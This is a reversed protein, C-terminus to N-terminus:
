TFKHYVCEWQFNNFHNIYCAGHMYPMGIYMMLFAPVFPFMLRVWNRSLGINLMGNREFSAWTEWLAKNNPKKAFPTSKKRLGQIDMNVRCKMEPKLEGRKLMEVVQNQKENITSWKPGIKKLKQHLDDQMM